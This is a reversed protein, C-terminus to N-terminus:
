VLIALDVMDHCADVRLGAAYMGELRRTLKLKIVVEQPPCGDLQRSAAMDADKVTRIVFLHHHRPPILLQEITLAQRGPEDGLIKPLFAILIDIGELPM